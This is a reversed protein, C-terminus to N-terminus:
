RHLLCIVAIATREPCSVDFIRNVLDFITSATRLSNVFPLFIYYGCQLKHIIRSCSAFLQLIANYIAHECAYSFKSVCFYTQLLDIAQTLLYVFLLFFFFPLLFLLTSVRFPLTLTSLFFFHKFFSVNGSSIPKVLLENFCM